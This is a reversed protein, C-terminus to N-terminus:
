SRIVRRKSKVVEGMRIGCSIAFPILFLGAIFLVFLFDDLTLDNRWFYLPLFITLLASGIWVLNGPPLFFEIKHSRSQASWEKSGDRFSRM